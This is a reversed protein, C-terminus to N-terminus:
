RMRLQSEQERVNEKLRSVEVTYQQIREEARQFNDFLCAIKGAQQLM